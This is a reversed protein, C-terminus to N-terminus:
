VNSAIVVPTSVNAANLHVNHAIRYDIKMINALAYVCLLISELKVVFIAYYKVRYIYVIKVNNHVNSVYLITNMM